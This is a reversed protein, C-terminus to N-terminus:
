EEEEEQDNYKGFIEKVVEEKSKGQSNSEDELMKNLKAIHKYRRHKQLEELREEEEEKELLTALQKLIEHYALRPHVEAYVNNEAIHTNIIDRIEEKFTTMRKGREREM